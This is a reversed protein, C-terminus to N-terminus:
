QAGKNNLHAHMRERVHKWHDRGHILTGLCHIPLAIGVIVITLPIIVILWPLGFLIMRWTKM